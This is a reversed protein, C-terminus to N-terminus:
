LLLMHRVTWHLRDVVPEPSEDRENWYVGVNDSHYMVFQDRNDPDGLWWRLHEKERFPESKPPDYIDSVRGDRGYRDIDTLKNVFMTHKKDLPTANLTKVAATAQEPSGYEVFAYSSYRMLRTQGLVHTAMLSVYGDTMDKDNTPM